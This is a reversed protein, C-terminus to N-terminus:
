SHAKKAAQKIGKLVAARQWKPLNTPATQLAEGMQDPAHFAVCALVRILAKKEIPAFFPHTMAHMLAHVVSPQVSESFLIDKANFHARLAAVCPGKPCEPVGALLGMIEARRAYPKDTDLWRALFPSGLRLLCPGIVLTGLADASLADDIMLSWREAIELSSQPQSIAAVSLLAIAVLGDEYAQSFLINLEKRDRPLVAPKSADILKTVESM